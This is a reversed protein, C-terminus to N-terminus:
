LILFQFGIGVGQATVPIGHRLVADAAEVAEPLTRTSHCFKALNFSAIKASKYCFKAPSRETAWM